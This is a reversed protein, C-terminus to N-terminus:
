TALRDLGLSQALARAEAARKPANATEFTALASALHERAADTDGREVRVRALDVRTRAGEFTAECATFTTLADTLYGEAEILDGGARAIRGCARQALGVNFPVPSTRSLELAQAATQRAGVPDGALLLAESHLAMRRTQSVLGSLRGVQDVAQGLVAVASAADGLELYAAGLAGAALGATLADPADDAARRAAALALETEGRLSHVSAIIHGAFALLRPDRATRGVAECQKAAELAADFAETALSSLALSYYSLGLWHRTQPEDLLAVAQAAHAAGDGPHGLGYAALGVVYHAKGIREREGSREGEELAHQAALEGPAYEALYLHTMALRFYYESALKPDAVRKLDGAHNGLLSLIERLRGLLTLVFAQRLAVDLRCRDRESPDVQEVATMAQQLAAAAADLAYRQAALEAFRILHPMAKRGDGARLYHHGLQDAVEDLHERHLGELAEGVAQHLAPRMAPLLREYAVHRIWDHCFSLHDGVGDFIRRRVLEEVAAAAEGDGLRASRALLSFSFDRGIAAAVAVVHRLVDGLRELRAAVFDQVGRAVRSHTRWVEPSQDHLARVSEVIVFPNGESASWIEGAIRDWDRRTRTSPRLAQALAGTEVDSLPGLAIEELRGEARLETLAQSLM